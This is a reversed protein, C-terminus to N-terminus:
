EPDGWDSFNVSMRGTVSVANGHQDQGFFTIEAITSIVIAGGSNVLAVLPPELKAQLRVISFGATATGRGATITFAGEFPHPVDVGPTNRGDSRLFVVRYRNVTIFHGPEIGLGGTAGGPDKLNVSFRVQGVDEFVTPVRVTQTGITREVLTQVDSALVSSLSGPDAGSAATLSEIVLYSGGKGQRVVDGCSLSAMAAAALMVLRGTRM